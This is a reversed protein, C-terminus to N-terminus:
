QVQNTKKNFYKVELSENSTQLAASRKLGSKAQKTSKQKMSRNWLVQCGDSSWQSLASFISFPFEFLRLVTVTVNVKVKIEKGKKTM